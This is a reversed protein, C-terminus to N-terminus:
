NFLILLFGLIKGNRSCSLSRKKLQSKPPNIKKKIDQYPYLNLDEKEPWKWNKLSKQMSNILVGEENLSKIKGVFHEEEYIFIVFDGIEYDYSVSDEEIPSIYVAKM